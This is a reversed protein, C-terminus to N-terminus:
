GDGRAETLFAIKELPRYFMIRRILEQFDVKHGDFAPGDVCATKTEGGVTVRCAGCMGTGDVMIPFLHVTTPIGYPKTM